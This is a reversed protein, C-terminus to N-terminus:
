ARGRPNWRGARSGPPLPKTGLLAYDQLAAIIAELNDIVYSRLPEQLDSERSENLFELVDRYLDNRQEEPITPEPAARGLTRDCYNLSLMVEPGLRQAHQNWPAELNRGSLIAKMANVWVLLLDSDDPEAARILSEVVSALLELQALKSYFRTTDTESVQLAAALVNQTPANPNEGRLGEVVQLLRGAPNNPDSM